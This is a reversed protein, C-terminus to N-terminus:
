YMRNLATQALEALRDVDFAHLRRAVSAANFTTLIPTGVLSSLDVWEIFEGPVDNIYGLLATQDWFREAFGLHLKELAGMGLHDIAAVKAAPLPPDFRISSQKLVGLPVTVLAAAADFTRTATTVTVGAAKTTVATVPSSLSVDLGTALGDIIKTLGGVVFVDGGRQEAGEDISEATLQDADAAFEHEVVSAILYSLVDSDYGKLDKAWEAVTAPEDRDIFSALAKDFRDSAETDVKEGRRDRIVIRDYDFPIQQVGAAAALPVLPNGNVGHIWNAGMELAVGNREVTHVRGGIRDRAEVVKVTIGRERLAVAAGLGALGAGIVVASQHGARAIEDAARRGSILAGHMTSPFDTSTAEGAFFLRQDVPAALEGRKSARVGKPLYSYSGFSYPDDFWRTALAFTPMRNDGATTPLDPDAGDDSCAALLSASLPLGVLGALLSRRTLEFRISHRDM